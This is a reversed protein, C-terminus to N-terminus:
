IDLAIVFTMDTYRSKPIPQGLKAVAILENSDNYLGVTTIYPQFYSGTAFNYTDGNSGSKISPNQSYNLSSENVRCRYQHQFITHSAQWNVNTGYGVSDKLLSVLEDTKNIVGVGHPYFINGVNTGGGINYDVNSSSVFLIEVPGADPTPDAFQYISSDTLMVGTTADYTIGQNDIVQVQTPGANDYFPSKNPTGQWSASAFTYGAPPSVPDTTIQSSDNFSSFPASESYFTLVQVTITTDDAIQLNGEGDDAITISGTRFTFSSPKIAEGFRDRRIDVVFIDTNDILTLSRSYFLTSQNYNEFSGSEVSSSFNSYYLHNISDFVLSSYQNQTKLSASSFLSARDRTGIYFEVGASGSDGFFPLSFSKHATYPVVFADQKNLRIFASM